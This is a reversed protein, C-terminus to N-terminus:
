GKTVPRKLFGRFLCKVHMAVSLSPQARTTGTNWADVDAIRIQARIDHNWNVEQPVLLTPAAGVSPVGVTIVGQGTEVTNGYPGIGCQYGMAWGDCILTENIKANFAFNDYVKLLDAPVAGTNGAYHHAYLGLKTIILEWGAPLAHTKNLNTDQKAKSATSDFFEFESGAATDTTSSRLLITDYVLDERWEVLKINKTTGAIRFVGPEGKVQRIPAAM